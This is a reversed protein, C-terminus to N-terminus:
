SPRCTRMARCSGRWSRRCSASRRAPPPSTYYGIVERSDPERIVFPAAIHRRADQGAQKRLYRDLEPIGCSFAARDHHKGLPETILGERASDPTM